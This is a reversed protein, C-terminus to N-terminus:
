EEKNNNDEEVLIGKYVYVFICSSIGVMWFTCFGLLWATTLFTPKVSQIMLEPWRNDIDTKMLRLHLTTVATSFVHAWQHSGGIIDFSGPSLREPLKSAFVFVLLISFVVIAFHSYLQKYIFTESGDPFLYLVYILTNSWLFPQMYALSRIIFRYRRWYFRSLCTIPVVSMTLLAGLGLYTYEFQFTPRNLPRYYYFSAIIGGMEYLAIGSYDMFFCFHRFKYSIANFLHAFSSLFTYLLSGVWYCVLPLYRTDTIDRYSDWLWYAWVMFPVFHTWFNVVENNDSRFMTKVCSVPSLGIRRYGSLIYPERLWHSVSNASLGRLSM